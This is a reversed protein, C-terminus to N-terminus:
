YNCTQSPNYAPLTWHYIKHFSCLDRSVYTVTESPTVESKSKCRLPVRLLLCSSRSFTCPIALVPWNEDRGLAMSPRTDHVIGQDNSSRSVKSALWAAPPPNQPAAAGISLRYSTRIYRSALCPSRLLHVKKFAQLATYM